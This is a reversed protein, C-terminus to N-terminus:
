SAQPLKGIHKHISSPAMYSFYHVTKGPTKTLLPHWQPLTPMSEPQPNEMERNVASTTNLPLNVKLPLTHFTKRIGVGTWIEGNRSIRTPYRQNFPGANLEKIPSRRQYNLQLGLTPKFSLKQGVKAIWGSETRWTLAGTNYRPNPSIAKPHAQPAMANDTTNAAWPM